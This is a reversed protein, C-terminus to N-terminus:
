QGEMAGGTTALPLTSAGVAAIAGAGSEAAEAGRVARRESAHAPWNKSNAHGLLARVVGGAGRGGGGDRAGGTGEDCGSEGRRGESVDGEMDM